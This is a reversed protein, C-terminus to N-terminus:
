AIFLYRSFRFNKINYSFDRILCLDDIIQKTYKITKGCWFGAGWMNFIANETVVNYKKGVKSFDVPYSYGSVAIVDPDDRFFDLAKLM